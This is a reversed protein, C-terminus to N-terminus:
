PSKEFSMLLIRNGAVERGTSNIKILPLFSIVKNTMQTSQDLGKRMKKVASCYFVCVRSTLYEM